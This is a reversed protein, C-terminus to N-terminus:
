QTIMVGGVNDGSLTYPANTSVTVDQANGDPTRIYHIQYHQGDITTEYSGQEQLYAIYEELAWDNEQLILSHPKGVYRFHWPEFSIGTVDVKNAPYRLVFGFHAAHQALWQGEITNEMLGNTSGIDVALGTQHESYGAPLAFDAGKDEFLQQQLASSRYGSNLQFHHIGQEQAALFMDQLPAIVPQAVLLDSQIIVNPAIDKPIPSLAHPEKQLIAEKNVLLLLGTYTQEASIHISYAQTEEKTGTITWKDFATYAVLCFGILLLIKKMM